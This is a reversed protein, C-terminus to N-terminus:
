CCINMNVQQQRTHNIQGEAAGATSVTSVAKNRQHFSEVNTQACECLLLHSIDDKRVKKNLELLSSMNHRRYFEM